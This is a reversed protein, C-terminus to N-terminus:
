SPIGQECRDLLRSPSLDLAGALKAVTVLSPTVSGREIEGLYSRNLDAKEALLEQSWGREERSSRVTLGFYTILETM